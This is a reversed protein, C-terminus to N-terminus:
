NNATYILPNRRRISSRNIMFPVLHKSQIQINSPISISENPKLSLFPLSQFLHEWPICNEHKMPFFFRPLVHTKRIEMPHSNSAKKEFIGKYAMLLDITSISMREM